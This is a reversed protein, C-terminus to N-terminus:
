VAYTPYTPDYMQEHMFAVLDGPRDIEALGRKFAVEGVAAAIKASVERVGRLPPYLSGQAIDADSTCSALTRAAAMFMEDTV